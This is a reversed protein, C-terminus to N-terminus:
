YENQISIKYEINNNNNIKNNTENSKAKLKSKRIKIFIKNM